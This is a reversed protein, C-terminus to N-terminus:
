ETLEPLGALLAGERYPRYRLGDLPPPTIGRHQILIKFTEGMGGPHILARAAGFEAAAPDLREMEAAIGLGLLFNLQNTFGTLELGVTRGALVLATFDVHATLDQDGVAEYLRAHAVHGRYAMLTGRLRQPAFLDAAAHGYDITIVYGAALARGVSRIWDLARLNVEARQGPRLRIGLREFYAALEPTSPAAAVEVLREGARTVYIEQLGADTGIVAHVPLADILENSLVVGTIDRPLDNAWEVRALLEPDHALRARQHNRLGDSEEIIVYRYRDFALPADARLGSLLDYALVGKGAGVEVIAVDGGLAAAMQRVQRAILRGFLPHVGPSTQYDGAPGIREGDAHYYGGTPHYLALEMFRAFPIRGHAAIERDVAALVAPHGARAAPPPSVPM